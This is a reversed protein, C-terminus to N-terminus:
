RPDWGESENAPDIFSDQVSAVHGDLSLANGAGNHRLDAIGFGNINTSDGPRHVYSWLDSVAPRHDIFALTDTPSTVHSIRWGHNGFGSWGSHPYDPGPLLLYQWNYGYSSTWWGHEFDQAPCVWIGKGWAQDTWPKMSGTLDGAGPPEPLYDDHAGIYMEVAYGVQRLQSKCQADKAASRAGSLAPLLIGILLAIISITVLLEILTFASSPKRHMPIM